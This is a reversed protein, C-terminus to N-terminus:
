KYIHIILSADNLAVRQSNLNLDINEILYSGLYLRSLGADELKFPNNINLLNGEWLTHLQSRVIVKKRQRPYTSEVLSNGEAATQVEESRWKSVSRYILRIRIARNKVEEDERVIRQSKLTKRRLKSDRDFHVRCGSKVRRDYASRKKVIEVSGCHTSIEITRYFSM